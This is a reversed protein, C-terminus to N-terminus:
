DSNSDERQNKRGSNPWTVNANETQKRLELVPFSYKNLYIILPSIYPSSLM